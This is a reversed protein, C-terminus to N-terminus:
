FYLIDIIKAKIFDVAKILNENAETSIEEKLDWYYGKIHLLYTKPNKNYIKNCLDLIYSPSVAHMTFEITSDDSNVKVFKFSTDIALSADVFIVIDKDSISLADEVNLQYNTDVEVNKINEDKIWKEIHEIFKIGLGDDQRGPNGYGYLLINM